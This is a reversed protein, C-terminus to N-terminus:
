DVEPADCAVGNKTWSGDSSHLYTEYGLAARQHLHKKIAEITIQEGCAFHARDPTLLVLEKGSETCYTLVANLGSYWDLNTM